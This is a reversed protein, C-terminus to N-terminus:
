WSKFNLVDKWNKWTLRMKHVNRNYSRDYLAHIWSPMAAGTIKPKDDILIDGKIITKDMTLIIRKTWEYGFHAEVWQYKELVCNQYHSMPSTCIFVEHGASKMETIAELGGETAEPIVFLSPDKLAEKLLPIYEKPYCDDVYFTPQQEAPICILDPHLKRWIEEFAKCTEALTDDMDVLVKM